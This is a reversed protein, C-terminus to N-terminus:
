ACAADGHGAYVPDAADGGRPVGRGGAALARGDTRRVAPFARHGPTGALGGAAAARVLRSVPRHHTTAIAALATSQSGAALGARRPLSESRARAAPRYDRPRRGLLLVGQVVGAVV